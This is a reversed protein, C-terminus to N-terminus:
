LPTRSLSAIKLLRLCEVNSALDLATFDDLTTLETSAGRELFFQVWDTKGASAAYMLVTAGNDNQDDLGAGRQLLKIAITKSDSVVCAWLATTGDMNRHHIDAGADILNDAITVVGRRCALILPTDNHSGPEDIDDANFGKERIWNRTENAIM